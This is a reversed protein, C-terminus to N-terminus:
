ALGIADPGRPALRAPRGAAAGTVAIPAIDNPSDPCVLSALALLQARGVGVEFMGGLYAGVGRAGAAAVLEIAELWGGMRSPKVNVAVPPAPLRDLDRASALPQDFALRARLGTSWALAGRRPDPAPDEHLARPMAARAREHAAPDGTGKWDLVAIRGLGALRELLAADWRPDADLKIEPAGAALERGVAAVPDDGPALSVVYRTDKAPTTAIEALTTASQRLALDIAAAEVAARGYRDAFSSALRARLEALSLRGPALGGGVAAAFATHAGPTWGVHEGRGTHGGGSLAVTSTPRPGDPYSPVEFAGVEVSAADIAVVLRGLRQLLRRALAADAPPPDGDLM